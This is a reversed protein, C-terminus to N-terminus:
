LHKGWSHTLELLQSTFVQPKQKRHWLWSTKQCRWETQARKIDIRTRNNTGWDTKGLSESDGATKNVTVQCIKGSKPLWDLKGRQIENPDYIDVFPQNHCFPNIFRGMLLSYFIFLLEGMGHTSKFSNLLILCGKVNIDNTLWIFVSRIQSIM